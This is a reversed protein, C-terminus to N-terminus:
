PWLPLWPWGGELVELVPTQPGGSNGELATGIRAFGQGLWMQLADDGRVGLHGAHWALGPVLGLALGLALLYWPLGARLVDLFVDRLRPLLFGVSALGLVRGAGDVIPVKSRVSRGLTGQVTETVSRGRLFATFDGGQMRQGVQAANPHTLRRADRDTVVVYDAGLQDRYRNMLANLNAREAANGSLAAVVPPLAAVLRSERLSREAFSRHIGDYVGQSVLGAVPLGLVRPDVVARLTVIGTSRLAEIRRAREPNFSGERGIPDNMKM